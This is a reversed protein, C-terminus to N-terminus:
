ARDRFRVGRERGTSGCAVAIRPLGRNHIQRAVFAKDRLSTRRRGDGGGKESSGRSRTKANEIARAFLKFRGLNQVEASARTRAM